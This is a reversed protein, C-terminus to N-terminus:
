KIDIKLSPTRPIATATATVEPSETAPKETRQAPTAVPAAYRVHSVIPAKVPGPSHVEVSSVITVVGADFVDQRLPEVSTSTPDPAATAVPQHIGSAIVTSRTSTGSGVKGHRLSRISYSGLALLLAVAGFVMWGNVPKRTFGPGTIHGWNSTRLTSAQSLVPPAVSAAAPPPISSRRRNIGAVLTTSDPAFPLLDKALQAVTSYRREPQKELCHAIVADFAKPLGPRLKSPIPTPQSFVAACLEPVTSGSFPPQGTVLEFLVCGLAWIDSRQDVIKASQMQEPSMYLPSGMVSSTQTLSLDLASLPESLKSIGFDLVKIRLSADGQRALFLNQPKLDRHIIGIAHAAAIADAAEMVYRAAQTLPLPGQQELLKDLDQGELYEMVMYPTGDQQYDVDLVRVVYDSKIRVSARAERFFRAATESNAAIEPLMVKVAVLEDLEVHRAAFVVGMGGRGLIRDVVFRNTFHSGPVLSDELRSSSSM